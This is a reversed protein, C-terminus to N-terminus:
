EPWFFDAGFPVELEQEYGCAPCSFDDIIQINPSCQRYVGRLYKSDVATLNEVVHNIVKPTDFDNVSVIFRKLQDSVNREPSNKKNQKQAKAVMEVEDQGKLLRIEVKFETKPLWCVFTGRDTKTIGVDELDEISTVVAKNLDFDHPTVTTCNPCTAKTSYINGYASRRAAIIIANRDGVLLSKADIRQDYILSSLLREIALGKKLLSRSTLIDEDKATMFRIEVTEEGCLPHGEPYGQGQSPLEVHETPAVFDMPNPLASAAPSESGGDGRPGFRDENNRSM